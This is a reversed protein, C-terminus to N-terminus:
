KEDIKQTSTIKSIRIIHCVRCKTLCLSRIFYALHAYRVMIKWYKPCMPKEALISKKRPISATTNEKKKNNNEHGIENMGYFSNHFYLKRKKSWRKNTQTINKKKENKDKAEWKKHKNTKKKIRNNNNNQLMLYMWCIKNEHTSHTLHIHDPHCDTNQVFVSTQKPDKAM